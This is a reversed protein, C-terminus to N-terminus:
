RANEERREGYSCYDDPTTEVWMDFCEDDYAQQPHYCRGYGDGSYTFKNENYYKCDKCRTVAVVDATPAQILVRKVSAKYPLDDPLRNLLKDADIYRSKM